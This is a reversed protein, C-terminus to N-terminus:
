ISNSEGENNIFVLFHKRLTKDSFKKTKPCNQTINTLSKKFLDSGKKQYMQELEMMIIKFCDIMLVLNDHAIATLNDKLHPFFVRDKSLATKKQEFLKIKKKLLPWLGIYKM